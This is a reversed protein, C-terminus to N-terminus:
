RGGPVIDTTTTEDDEESSGEIELEEDLQTTSTSKVDLVELASVRRHSFPPQLVEISGEYAPVFADDKLLQALDAEAEANRNRNGNAKADPEGGDTLSGTVLQVVSGDAPM